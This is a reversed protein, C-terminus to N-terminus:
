STTKSFCWGRKSRRHQCCAACSCGASRRVVGSSVGHRGVAAGCGKGGQQEGGACGRAAARGQRGRLGARQRGALRQGGAKGCGAEDDGRRRANSGVRQFHTALRHARVAQYAALQTLAGAGDIALAVGDAELHSQGLAPASAVQVLGVAAEVAVDNGCQAAKAATRGDVRQLLTKGDDAGVGAVLRRLVGEEAEVRLGPQVVAVLGDAFERRHGLAQDAGGVAAAGVAAVEGAAAVAAAMGEDGGGAVGVFVVAEQGTGAMPPLLMRIDEQTYGFAQQRDLLSVDARSARPEVPKLEELQIQTRKLWERYPHASALQKKIEEDSIIRGEELDVLLMRGPQLRWKRTIKEQPIPLVGMESAMVVLDDDTTFWRAPRLGNRDLTAGIQRGDTFAIAAPGDWPEMMAAHYEYFARREEDMLPNGAWAEPILMMAAHALSYGGQVLLELANDFCATDSQGEYSIPWLKAIENEFLDSDVSAQRAAMWNVNGRLTNIEGNHAVMRYPHALSWTPFTNTSFRQHVLALASEFRPDKLDRFYQGLQPALLMGKYVITRCSMSVPYFGAVRSDPKDKKTRLSYVTNSIVKRTIFLRREFEDDSAIGAARGIFVQLHRPETPKVSEGLGSNDVPPERFGLLAQGEEAIVKEIIQKCTAYGQPDSPLFFQGIAFQGPAPLVFGLKECEGAFFRHPIQVLMGCGDGAKPDAGVAGRHDLNLLIELGQQVIAHSKRNKMDAVFGTGCSDKEHRPDYLGEAAPLGPDAASYSARKAERAAARRALGGSEAQRTIRSM